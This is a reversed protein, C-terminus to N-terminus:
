IKINLKNKLKNFKDYGNRLEAMIRAHEGDVEVSAIHVMEVYHQQALLLLVTSPLHQVREGKSNTYYKIQRKIKVDLSPKEKSLYKTSVYGVTGNYQVPIWKCDCDEAITVPTGKPIVMLVESQANADYRMKLNTTTYKTIDQANLTFAFIIQILFLILKNM